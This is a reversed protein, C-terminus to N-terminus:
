PCMKKPSEVKKTRLNYCNIILFSRSFCARNLKIEIRKSENRNMKLVAHKM